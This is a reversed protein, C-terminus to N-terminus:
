TTKHYLLFHPAFIFNSGRSPAVGGCFPGVLVSVRNYVYDNTIDMPFMYGGYVHNNHGLPYYIQVEWLNCNTKHKHLFSM